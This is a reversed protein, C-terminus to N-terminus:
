KSQANNLLATRLAAYSPAAERVGEWFAIALPLYCMWAPIWRPPGRDALLTLLDAVWRFLPPALWILRARWMRFLGTNGILDPHSGFTQRLEPIQVMLRCVALGASCREGRAQEMTKTDIHFVLAGALAQASFGRSSLQHIILREDCGDGPVPIGSAMAMVSVSDLIEGFLQRPGSANCIYFETASIQQGERVPQASAAYQIAKFRHFPSSTAKPDYLIQGVAFEDQVAAHEALVSPQPMVDDDLFLVRRGRAAHLGARRSEHAGPNSARRLISVAFTLGETVRTADIPPDSGDDVVVVEFDAPPLSQGAISQLLSHLAKPRNRTPIVVTLRPLTIAPDM